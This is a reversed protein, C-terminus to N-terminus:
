GQTNWQCIYVADKQYSSISPLILLSVLFISHSIPSWAIAALETHFSSSSWVCGFNLTGQLLSTTKGQFLVRTVNTPLSEDVVTFKMLDSPLSFFQVKHASYLTRSLELLNDTCAWFRNLLQSFSTPWLLVWSAFPFNSYNYM